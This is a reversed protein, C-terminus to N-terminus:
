TRAASPGMSEVIRTLLNYRNFETHERLVLEQARAATLSIDDHRELQHAIWNPVDSSLQPLTRFHLESSFLLQMGSDGSVRNTALLSGGGMAEFVRITVEDHASLNLVIRGRTCHRAAEQVTVGTLNSFSFRPDGELAAILSPRDGRPNMTSVVDFPRGETGVVALSTDFWYPFWFSKIRNAQYALHSGYDSTLTVDCMAATALNGKALGFVPHSKTTLRPRAFAQPDDGALHVLLQGRPRRWTMRRLAGLHVFGLDLLVVVHADSAFIASLVFKEYSDSRTDDEELPNIVEVQAGSLRCQRVLSSAHTYQGPEAPIIWLWRLQKASWSPVQSIEVV